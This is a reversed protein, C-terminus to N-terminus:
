SRKQIIKEVGVNAFYGGGSDSDTDDEEPACGGVIGISLLGIGIIKIVSRLEM